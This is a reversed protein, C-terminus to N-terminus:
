TFRIPDTFTGHPPHPLPESRLSPLIRHLPTRLGFAQLLAFDIALHFGM